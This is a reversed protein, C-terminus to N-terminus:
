SLAWAAALCIARAVGALALLSVLVGAACFVHLAGDSAGLWCLTPLLHFREPGLALRAGELYRSVPLIGSSGVLGDAQVWFSVFSILFCLAVLRLFLVSALRYSPAESREM